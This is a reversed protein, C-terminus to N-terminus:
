LDPVSLVLCHLIGIGHGLLDSLKHALEMDTEPEAGKNRINGEM